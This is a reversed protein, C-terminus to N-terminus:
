TRTRMTSWGTAPRHPSTRVSYYTSLQRWSAPPTPLRLSRSGASELRPRRRAGLIVSPVHWSRGQCPFDQCADRFCELKRCLNGKCLRPCRTHSSCPQYNHRSSRALGATSHNPKSFAWDGLAARSWPASPIASSLRVIYDVLLKVIGLQVRPIFILFM